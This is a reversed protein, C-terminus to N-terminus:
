VRERCSARGIEDQIRIWQKGRTVGPRAGTAAIKKGVLCNLFSSKGTNPVGAVMVRAPRIRRGRALMEQTRPYYAKSIAQIVKNRGKNHLSDMTLASVGDKILCDQYCRTKDPDALDAKNLVMIVPKKGIMAELDPNRCSFPARADLILAVIDVLKLNEEIERKARVM